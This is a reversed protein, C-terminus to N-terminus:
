AEPSMLWSVLGMYLYVFIFTCMGLSITWLTGKYARMRNEKHGGPRPKKEEQEQWNSKLTSTHWESRGETLTLGTTPRGGGALWQGELEAATVSLSSEEGPLERGLVVCHPYQLWVSEAEKQAIKKGPGEIM